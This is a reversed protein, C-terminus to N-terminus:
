PKPLESVCVFMVSHGPHDSWDFVRASVVHRDGKSDLVIDGTQPLLVRADAPIVIPEKYAETSEFQFRLTLIMM